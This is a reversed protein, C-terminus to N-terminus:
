GTPLSSDFQVLFENPSLIPIGQDKPFDGGNRTVLVDAGFDIASYLQLLDEFDKIAVQEFVRDVMTQNITTLALLAHLRRLHGLSTKQGLVSSYLYHVNALILPSTCGRWRKREVGRFIDRAPAFFPERELSLDLIVDADLFVLVQSSSMSTSKPLTSWGLM